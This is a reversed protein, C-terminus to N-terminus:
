PNAPSRGSGLAPVHVEGLARNDDFSIRGAIVLAGLDVIELEGNHGVAVDGDVRALRPASLEAMALNGEVVLGGARELAPFWAGTAQANAALRVVGGVERLHDFGDVGGLALTPGIVLDGGIREIAALGRLVLPAGTRIALAGPIAACGALADVDAQEHIAVDGVPCRPAAPHAPARSCAATTVAAALAGLAHGAGRV